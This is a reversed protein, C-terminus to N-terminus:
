KAIRSMGIIYNNNKALALMMIYTHMPIYIVYKVKHVYYRFIIAGTGAPPAIWHLSVFEKDRDNTHTAATQLYAYM